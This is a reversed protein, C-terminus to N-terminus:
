LALTVKDKYHLYRITFLTLLQSFHQITNYTSYTNYQKTLINLVNYTIIQTQLFLLLTLLQSNTLATYLQVEPQSWRDYTVM